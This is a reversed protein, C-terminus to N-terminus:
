LHKTLSIQSPFKFFFTIPFSVFGNSADNAAFLIHLKLLVADWNKKYLNKLFADFLADFWRKHYVIFYQHGFFSQQTGEIYSLGSVQKKYTSCEYM